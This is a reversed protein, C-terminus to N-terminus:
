CLTEKFSEDVSTCVFKHRVCQWKSQSQSLSCVERRAWMWMRMELEMKLSDNSDIPHETRRRQRCPYEKRKENAMIWKGLMFRYIVKWLVCNSIHSKIQVCIKNQELQFNVEESVSINM